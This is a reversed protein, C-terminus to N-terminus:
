ASDEALIRDLLAQVAALAPASWAVRVPVVWHRSGAFAACKVADKATMFVPANDGFDIQAPDFRHHDPYAHPTVVLGAATLMDFFRPPHAIGALAHAAQGAFAALPRSPGGALPEADDAELRFDEGQVLELDVSRLRSPPERLPGAPLCLGNGYGRAGDRVAIEADRRLAYHQLGDDALVVDAGLGVVHRAAALRDRGVVVPCGSSRALLVPEDGAAAPDSDRTVALSRVARAGGYGRSVIGPHRGRETLLRALEAVLPTKGSGGVTINGVVVVPVGPHGSALWGRRFAARRLAVALRFILALPWLLWVWRAWVGRGYWAAEVAASLRPLAM